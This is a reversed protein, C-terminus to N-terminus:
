GYISEKPVVIATGGEMEVIAVETGAELALPEQARALIELIEGKVSCRVRGLQGDHIPVSVKALVGLLDQEGVSSDVEQKRLFRVAYTVGLGTVLGPVLALLATTPERTSGFNSLLLGCGGFALAFYTWFRVSLFPLWAEGDHGDHGVHGGADIEHHADAGHDGHGFLTLLVLAGGVVAAMVYLALM